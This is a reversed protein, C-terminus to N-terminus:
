WTRTPLSGSFDQLLDISTILFIEFADTWPSEGLLVPLAGAPSEGGKRSANPRPLKLASRVLARLQNLSVPKALYDFAHVTNPM